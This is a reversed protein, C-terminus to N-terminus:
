IGTYTKFYLRYQSKNDLPPKGIKLIPGSDRVHLLVSPFVDRAASIGDFVDFSLNREM